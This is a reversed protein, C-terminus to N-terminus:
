VFPDTIVLTHNRLMMNGTHMDLGYMQLANGLQALQDVAYVWADPASGIHEYIDDLKQPNGLDHKSYGLGGLESLLLEVIRYGVTQLGHKVGAAYLAVMEPLHQQILQHEDSVPTLKEMRVYSWTTGPVPRVYRSFTPLHPNRHNKRVFEVFKTYKSHTPFVKLVYDPRHPHEAVAAELGMGLLLWVVGSALATEIM